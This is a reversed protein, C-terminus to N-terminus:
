GKWQAPSIGEYKKFVKIFNNSSNYGLLQALDKIKIEPNKELLVKAQKIRYFNIYNKFNSNMVKKFLISTYKFSFGLHDALNELSFDTSYNKENKQQITKK